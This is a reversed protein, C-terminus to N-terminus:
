DKVIEEVSFLVFESLGSASPVWKTRATMERQSIDGSGVSVINVTSPISVFAGAADDADYVHIAADLYDCDISRIQITYNTNAALWNSTAQCDYGDVATEVGCTYVQKHVSDEELGFSASNYQQYTLEVRSAASCSSPMNWQLRLSEATMVTNIPDDPNYLDIQYFDFIPVSLGTTTSNTATEDIVYTAGAEELSVPAASTAYDEIATITSTLGEREQRHETVIDLAREIGSEAGYYAQLSDDFVRAVTVERFVLSSIVFGIAAMVTMILLAFLM